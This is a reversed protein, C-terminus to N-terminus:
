NELGSAKSLGFIQDIDGDTFNTSNGKSIISLAAQREVDAENHRALHILMKYRLYRARAPELQMSLPLSGFIEVHDAMAELYFTQTDLIAEEPTKNRMETAAGLRMLFLESSHRNIILSCTLAAVIGLVVGLFFPRIWLKIRM